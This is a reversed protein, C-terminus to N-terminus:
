SNFSHRMRKGVARKLERGKTTTIRSGWNLHKANYDGGLIFREGLYNLLTTYDPKKLNHRPPCYVAGIILKQKVSNVCIATLQYEERQVTQEMHHNIHEKILIASGGNAQNLPHNANYTKYGRIKLYSQTTLHTESLLCIDINQLHLFIQLEEKRNLVGNANWTAIRLDNKSM